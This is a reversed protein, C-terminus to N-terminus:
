VDFLRVAEGLPSSDVRPGDRFFCDGAIRGVFGDDLALFVGRNDLDVVDVGSIRETPERFPLIAPSTTPSVGDGTSIVIGGGAGGSPRICEDEDDEILAEGCLLVIATGPISGSRVGTVGALIMFRPLSPM